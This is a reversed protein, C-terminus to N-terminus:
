LDKVNIYLIRAYICRMSAASVFYMDSSFNYFLVAVGYKINCYKTVLNCVLLNSLRESIGYKGLYM